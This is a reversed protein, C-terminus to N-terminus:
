KWDLYGVRTVDAVLQGLDRGQGDFLHIDTYGATELQAIYRGAPGRVPLWNITGDDVLTREWAGGVDAEVLPWGIFGSDPDTAFDTDKPSREFLITAGDSTPDHDSVGPPTLGAIEVTETSM